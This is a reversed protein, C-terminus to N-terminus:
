HKRLYTVGSLNRLDADSTVLEAHHFLATAYVIADAMALRHEISLEAASLALTGSLPVLYTKHIQAAVILAEEETRERKVKKYVEYLVVTPTVIASLDSLYDAYKHALPGATFFELWGSSDVLKM